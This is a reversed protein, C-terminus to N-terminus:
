ILKSQVPLPQIRKLSQFTSWSVNASYEQGIRRLYTYKFTATSFLVIDPTYRYLQTLSLIMFLRFINLRLPSPSFSLYKGQLLSSSPAYIKQIFCTGTSNVSEFSPRSLHTILRFGATKKPVLGIPSISRNHFPGAIRGLEIESQVKELVLSPHQFVSKLNKSDVATRPGSYHIKFGYLFGEYLTAAIDRDRYNLLMIQLETLNIPSKGLTWVNTHDQFVDSIFLDYVSHL